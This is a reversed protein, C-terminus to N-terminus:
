AGPLCRIVAGGVGDLVDDRDYRCRSRIWLVGSGAGVGPVVAAATDLHGTIGHIFAGAVVAAGDRNRPECPRAVPVVPPALLFSCPPTLGTPVSARNPSM